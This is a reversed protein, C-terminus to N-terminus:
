RKGPCRIWSNHIVKSVPLTPHLLLCPTTPGDVSSRTVAFIQTTILPKGKKSRAKDESRDGPLPRKKANAVGVAAGIPKDNWPTDDLLFSKSLSAQRKPIGKMSAIWEKGNKSEAWPVGVERNWSPHKSLGCVERTHGNRGCGECKVPQGGGSTVTPDTGSNNPPRQAANGSHGNGRPKEYKVKGPANDDSKGGLKDNLAATSAAKPEWAKSDEWPSGDLVYRRALYPKREKINKM